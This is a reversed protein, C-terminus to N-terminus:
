VVPADHDVICSLGDCLIVKHISWDLTRQKRTDHRAVSLLFFERMGPVERCQSLQGLVVATGGIHQEVPAIYDCFVRALRDVDQNESGTSIVGLDIPL